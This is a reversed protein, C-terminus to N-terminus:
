EESERERDENLCNSISNFNSNAAIRAREGYEVGTTQMIANSEGNDNLRKLIIIIIASLSYEKEFM